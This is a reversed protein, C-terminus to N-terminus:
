NLIINIILIIDLIDVINDSNLDALNEFNQNLILSVILIVDLVNILNDSNLDGSIMFSNQDAFEFLANEIQIMGNYNNSNTLLVIGISDDISLFMETASGLDGGNHGFLTRANQNKYYWVLGQTSNIDPFHITKILQITEPNLIRQGNFLGNNIYMSVFKALNNSSTRLQGSPYDSYGYHEQPNLNEPDAGTGNEGCIGDYDICCDDYDICLPDCQCPNNQNYVGCGIQFCYDGNEGNFHYPTAIQDENEIESLFWYTDNMELPEFINQNCFENFEQNSIQEVLLGILAVGINSYQYNTGPMSDTYNLSESYFEGDYTFYEQLYYILELDSDGDYYPMVNWNDRISSTHTLLMRFTINTLPYNPNTIDFSIYDNIADDLNFYNQEYLKMLATATITKSISSLIFLTNNDTMISESIDAYGLQKEWVIRDNKVIAISVGPILHTQMTNQIFNLLEDEDRLNNIVSHSLTNNQFDFRNRSASDFRLENSFLINVIFFTIFVFKIM